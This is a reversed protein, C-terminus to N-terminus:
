AAPGGWEGASGPGCRGFLQSRPSPFAEMQAGDSRLDITKLMSFPAADRRHRDSPGGVAPPGVGLGM